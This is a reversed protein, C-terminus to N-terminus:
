RKNHEKIRQSSMLLARPVHFFGKYNGGKCSHTLNAKQDFYGFWEGHKKDPFHEFTYDHVKKLWTLWQEEGTNCYALVLAYISETLPWWLKMNHELQLLPKNEIDMLYLLGGFEKDWGKELSGLIIKYAIEKESITPSIFEMAHLLFWAVEISHGPNFLRGEPYNSLSSGDIAITEMLIQHQHNYHLFTRRYAKELIGKIKPDSKCQLLEIAMSMIVMENALQSQEVSNEPTSLRGLIAPNDIWRIIEWFLNEAELICQNDKIAKGYELLGMMIFVAGYPKRQYHIPTTGDRSLSFYYRGDQDKGFKRIFDAGLKAAALYEPKAEWTNYLKSFMWVARGQLWFYKRDDYINGERDLGTFYGGFKQDLSHNLWFPIISENLERSYIEFYDQIKM